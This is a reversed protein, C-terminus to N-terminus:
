VTPEPAAPLLTERMFAVFAQAIRFQDMLEEPTKDVTFAVFNEHVLRNRIQGLELFAKMAAGIGADARVRAQAMTKYEDGFLAFFPGASLDDWNFFTHYKRRIVQRELLATVIVSGGAHRAPIERMVGTVEHEFFSAIALVLSRRFSTNFDTAYSIERADILYQGLEAHARYFAEVFEASM